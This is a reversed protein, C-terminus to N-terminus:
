DRPRPGAHCRENAATVSAVAKHCAAAIARQANLEPNAKKGAAFDEKARESWADIDARDDEDLNPCEKYRAFATILGECETDMTGLSVEAPAAIPEGPAVPPPEGHCGAALGAALGLPGLRTCLRGALRPFIPRM